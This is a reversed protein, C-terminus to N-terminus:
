RYTGGSGDDSGEQDWTREDNRGPDAMSGDTRGPDSGDEKSYFDGARETEKGSRKLRQRSQYVSVLEKVEDPGMGANKVLELIREARLKLVRQQVAKARAQMAELNKTVTELENEARALRDINAM